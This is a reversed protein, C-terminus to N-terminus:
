ELVGARLKEYISNGLLRKATTLAATQARRRLLGQAHCLRDFEAATTGKMVALRALQFRDAQSSNTGFRSTAVTHYGAERAVRSVRRNWRGGPCSFHEVVRGTVEELRAKSEFIEARLRGEDLDPLYSHTMSHSGIEFGREALERVQAKTLYGRTELRGAIIYFTARAGYEELLPAALVFDTECGDDFTIAVFPQPEPEEMQGLAHGVTLGRWGNEQLRELHQRFDDAALVYRTYGHETSVLARGPSELEHYMLFVSRRTM